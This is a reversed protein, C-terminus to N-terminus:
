KFRKMEQTIKAPRWKLAEQRSQIQEVTEGYNLQAVKSTDLQGTATKKLPQRM